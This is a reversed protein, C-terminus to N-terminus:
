SYYMIYNKSPSDDGQDYPGPTGQNARSRILRTGHNSGHNSGNGCAGKSDRDDLRVRVRVLIIYNKSPSDNGQDNPGPTGQNARSRTLRTGHNSGHSSGNGSAGKSDSDDLGDSVVSQNTNSNDAMEGAASM